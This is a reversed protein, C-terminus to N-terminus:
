RGGAGWAWYSCDFDLELSVKNMDTDPQKGPWLREAVMGGGEANPLVVPRSNGQGRTALELWM